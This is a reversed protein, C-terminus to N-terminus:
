AIALRLPTTGAGNTVSTLRNSRSTIDLWARLPTQVPALTVPIGAFAAPDSATGSNSAAM